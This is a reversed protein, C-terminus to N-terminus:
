STPRVQGLAELPHGGELQGAVAYPEFRVFAQQKHFPKAEGSSIADPHSPESRGYAYTALSRSDEWISFTSVIPPRGFGTAWRLGPANLVAGEARASTRLFRVAQTLRLRGLTLAAVPGEHPVSRGAPLDTALGPWSGAARLPRLRVHWGSALDRALPHGAEFEDLAADDDWFAVLGVRRPDPRPVVSPGLPAALLVHAERLGVTRAPKPQAALLRLGSAASLDALHVSAIM